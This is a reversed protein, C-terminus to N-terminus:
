TAILCALYESTNWRYSTRCKSSSSHICKHIAFYFTYNSVRFPWSHIWETTDRDSLLHRSPELTRVRSFSPLRQSNPKTVTIQFHTPLPLQWRNRAPKPFSPPRTLFKRVLLRTPRNVTVPNNTAKRWQQSRCSQRCGHNNMRVLRQWGEAAWVYPKAAWWTTELEERSFWPPLGNKTLADEAPGTRRKPADDSYYDAPAELPLWLPGKDM